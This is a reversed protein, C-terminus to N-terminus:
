PQNRRLATALVRGHAAYLPPPVCRGLREYRQQPTGPWTYDAPYGFIWALETPTFSRCEDPHLPNCYSHAGSATISPLPVKPSSRHVQFYRESYQGYSLKRWEVGGEDNTHDAHALEEATPKAPLTALADGLSFRHAQVGPRPPLPGVDRRIGRIVLRHRSTAAGYHSSKYIAGDVRYDLDALQQLIGTYYDHADERTALATVNEALIARPAIGDILRVWEDFLKDTSQKIGESYAKVKGGRAEASRNLNSFSSCPPSGEFLDLEGVKLGIRDLIEEPQVLRIDRDDVYTDPFNALYTERAAPVFENAYPIRWGAMHLGLSSGGCGSFTSTATLGNDRTLIEQLSPVTYPPREIEFLTDTPVDPQPDEEEEALLATMEEPHEVEWEDEPEPPEPEPDRELLDLLDVYETM